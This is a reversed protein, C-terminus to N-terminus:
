AVPYVVRIPYVKALTFVRWFSADPYVRWLAYFFGAPEIAPKTSELKDTL